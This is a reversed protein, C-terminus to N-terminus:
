LKSLIQKALTGDFTNMTGAKEFIRLQQIHPLILILMQVLVISAHRWWFRRWWDVSVVVRVGNRWLGFGFLFRQDIIEEFVKLFIKRVSFIGRINVSWSMVGWQRRPGDLPRAGRGTIARCVSYWVAVGFVLVGGRPRRRREGHRGGPIVLRDWLFRRYFSGLSM